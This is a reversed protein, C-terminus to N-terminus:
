PSTERTRAAERGSEESRPSDSPVIQMEGDIEALQLGIDFQDVADKLVRIDPGDYYNRATMESMKMGTMDLLTSHGILHSMWVVPVKKNLLHANFSHRLSHLDKNKEYLGLNRRYNLWRKSLADGYLGYTADGKLEPFLRQAGRDERHAAAIERLRAVRDLLGLNILTDHIPVMRKSSENKTEQAIEEDHIKFCWIGDVQIIDLLYLQCIEERRAGTFMLILPVWYDADKIIVQGPRARRKSSFCGTFMPTEFLARLEDDAYRRRVERHRRVDKKSYMQGKFPDDLRWGLKANLWAVFLHMNHLHKNVTKLGCRAVSESEQGRGKRSQRAPSANDLEVAKAIAQAATLGQYRGRGFHRPLRLIPERYLAAERFSIDVPQREGVCSRFIALSARAIDCSKANWSSRAKDQMFLEFVEAIPTDPTVEGISRV